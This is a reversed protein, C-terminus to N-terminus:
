CLPWIPCISMRGQSFTRSEVIRTNTERRHKECLREVFVRTNSQSLLVKSYDLLEANSMRNVGSSILEVLEASALNSFIYGQKEVEENAITIMKDILELRTM